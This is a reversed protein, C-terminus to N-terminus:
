NITKPNETSSEIQPLDASVRRTALEIPELDKLIKKTYAQSLNNIKRAQPMFNGEFSGVAKNYYDVTSQLNNGM